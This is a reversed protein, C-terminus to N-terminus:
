FARKSRFSNVQRASFSSPRPDIVQEKPLLGQGDDDDDDDRDEDDIDIDLEEEDAEEIENDEDDLAIVSDEKDSGSDEDGM